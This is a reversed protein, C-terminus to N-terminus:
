YDDKSENRRKNSGEPSEGSRDRCGKDSNWSGGSLGRVMRISRRAKAYFGRAKRMRTVSGRWYSQIVIAKKIIRVMVGRWVKQIVVASFYLEDMSAAVPIRDYDPCAMKFKERDSMVPAFARSNQSAARRRREAEEREEQLRQMECTRQRDYSRKMKAKYERDTLIGRARMDGLANRRFEFGAAEKTACRPGDPVSCPM